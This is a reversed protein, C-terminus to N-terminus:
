AESNSFDLESISDNVSELIGNKEIYEKWVYDSDSDITKKLNTYLAQMSAKWMDAAAKELREDTRRDKKQRKADKERQFQLAKHMFVNYGELRSELFELFEKYKM